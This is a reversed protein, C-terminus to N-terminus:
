PNHQNKLRTWKVASRWGDAHGRLYARRNTVYGTLIIAAAILALTLLTSM